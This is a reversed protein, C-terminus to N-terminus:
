PPPGGGEAWEIADVRGGIRSGTLLNQHFAAPFGLREMAEAVPGPDYAVRRPEVASGDFLAFAARPDGDRPQGVSGPNCFTKGWLSGMFQVHTHGSFLFDFNLDSFGGPPFRSIYGDLPNELSGHVMCARDRAAFALAGGLWSRAEPSLIRRQHDLCLNASASRPCRTGTLLNFDHNGMLHLAGRETLLACCENVMPYYGAVDGLSVIERCGAADAERLVAELAPLNGHIDALIAIMVSSTMSIDFPRGM